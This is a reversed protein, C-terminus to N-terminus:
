KEEPKLNLFLDLTNFTKPLVTTLPKSFEHRMGQFASLIGISRSQNIHNLGGFDYDESDGAPLRYDWPSRIMMARIMIEVYGINVSVHSSIIEEFSALVETSDKAKIIGSQLYRKCTEVFTTMAYAISVVKFLPEDLNYDSLDIIAYNGDIKKKVDPSQAYTVFEKSFYIESVGDGVEVSVDRKPCQFVVNKIRGFVTSSYKVNGVSGSIINVVKPSKDILIAISGKGIAPKMHEAVYLKNRDLRLTELATQSMIYQIVTNVVVHKEKLITQAITESVQSTAFIGLNYRDGMVSVLRGACMSCVGDTIKCKLPSRLDVVTGMFEDINEPTLLVIKGEHVINKWLISERHREVIEFPITGETGCDGWTVDQIVSTALHQTRGFYSANPLNRQNGYVSRKASLSEFAYEVFDKLGDFYNGEILKSHITNNLDTKHGVQGFTHFIQDKNILGLAAYIYLANKPHPQCLVEWMDDRNKDLTAQNVVPDSNSGSIGRDVVKKFEPIEYQQSYEYASISRAYEDCEAISFRALEQIIYYIDRSFPKTDRVNRDSVDMLISTGLKCLNKNSVVELNQTYREVIPLDWKRAVKWYLLHIYLHRSLMEVHSRDDLEVRLMEQTGYKCRDILRNFGHGEKPIKGIDDVRPTM